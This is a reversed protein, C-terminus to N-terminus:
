NFPLNNFIIKKEALLSLYVLLEKELLLVALSHLQDGVEM